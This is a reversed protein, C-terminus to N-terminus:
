NGNKSVVEYDVTDKEENYSLKVKLSKYEESDMLFGAEVLETGSVFVEKETKIQEIIKNSYSLSARKILNEEEKAIQEENNIDSFAFSVKVISIIAIISVIALVILLEPLTYGNKKM